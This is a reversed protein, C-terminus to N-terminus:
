DNVDEIDGEGGEEEEEGEIMSQIVDYIMSAFSFELNFIEMELDELDMQEFNVNEKFERIKGEILNRGGILFQQIQLFLIRRKEKDSIFSIRMADRFGKSYGLLFFIERDLLDDMKEEFTEQDM